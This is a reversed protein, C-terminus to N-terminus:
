NRSPCDCYRWNWQAILFRSYGGVLGKGILYVKRGVLDFGLFFVLPRLSNFLCLLIIVLQSSIGEIILNWFFCVWRDVVYFSVVVSSILWTVLVRLDNLVSYYVKAIRLSCCLIIYPSRSVPRCYFHDWLLFQEFRLSHISSSALEALRHM